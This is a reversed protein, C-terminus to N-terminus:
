NNANEEGLLSERLEAIREYEVRIWNPTSIYKDDHEDLLVKYNGLIAVLLEEQRDTLM